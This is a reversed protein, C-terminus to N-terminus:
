QGDKKALTRKRLDLAFKNLKALENALKIITEDASDTLRPGDDDGILADFETSAISSADDDDDMAEDDDTGYSADKRFMALWMKKGAGRLTTRAILKTETLVVGKYRLRIEPIGGPASVMECRLDKEILARRDPLPLQRDYRETLRGIWHNLTDASLPIDTTHKTADTSTPTTNGVPLQQTNRSSTNRAYM